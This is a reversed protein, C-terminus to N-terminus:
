APERRPWARECDSGSRPSCSSGPRERGEDVEVEREDAGRHSIRALVRAGALESAGDAPWEVFAIRGEGLYDALLDPDEGELSSIRYLDLHSVTLGEAQYRNGITFTPSTVPQRM